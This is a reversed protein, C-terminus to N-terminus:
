ADAAEVRRVGQLFPDDDGSSPARAGDTALENQAAIAAEIDSWRWGKLTGVSIPKPLLGASVDADVKARSCDLLYALTEASIYQPPYPRRVDQKKTM